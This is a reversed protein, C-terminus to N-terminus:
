DAIGRERAAGVRRRTLLLWVAAVLATASLVLWLAQPVQWQILLPQALLPNPVQFSGGDPSDIITPAAAAGVAHVVIYAAAAMPPTFTAITKQWRPWVPACWVASIGSVWGVVPLVFGGIGSALAATRQFGPSDVSIRRQSVLLRFLLVATVCVAALAGVTMSVMVGDFAAPVLPNPSAGTQPASLLSGTALTVAAVLIAIPPTVTAILKARRTWLPSCWVMVLGAIWGIFPLVIGGLASVVAAAVAFGFTATVPMRAGAPTATPAEPVPTANMASRSTGLASRASAAIHVPDGLQVIRDHAAGADLTNLEEAVGDRIEDRTGAPLDRLATDLRRLYERVEPVEPSNM